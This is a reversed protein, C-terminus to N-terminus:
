KPHSHKLLRVGIFGMDKYVSLYLTFLSFINHKTNVEDFRRKLTNVMSIDRKHMFEKFTAKVQAKTSSNTVLSINKNFVKNLNKTRLKHPISSLGYPHKRYATGILGTYHFEYLNALRIKLDWDEHTTLSFDYGGAKQYMEKTFIFDRPIFSSRSLLYSLIYGQKINNEKGQVIQNNESELLINSFSVIDKNFQKKQNIALVIEKEIKHSDAYYDDADLTSIYQGKAKIVGEHRARAVGMNKRLFVPSFLKPHKAEYSQIIDRSHDTSCDDVVVIEIDKYTQKLISNFCEQLYQANNYNAVIISVTSLFM